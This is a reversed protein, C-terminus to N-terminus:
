FVLSKTSAEQEGMGLSGKTRAQCPLPPNSHWKVVLGSGM